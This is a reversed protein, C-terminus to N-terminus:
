KNHMRHNLLRSRFVFQLPRVLVSRRTWPNFVRVDISPHADLGAIEDDRGALTLDDVFFRVRVGRDAAALVHQMLLRGTMDDQWIFYQIDLTETALDALALRVLLADANNDLLRFASEGARLTAIINEGREALDGRHAP